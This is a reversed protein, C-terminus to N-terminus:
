RAITSIIGPKSAVRVRVAISRQPEAALIVFNNTHENSRTREIAYLQSPFVIPISRARIQVKM